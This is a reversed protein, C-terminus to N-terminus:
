KKVFEMAIVGEGPLDNTSPFYAYEQGMMYPERWFPYAGGSRKQMANAAFSGAKKEGYVACRSPRGVIPFLVTELLRQDYYQQWFTYGDAAPLLLGYESESIYQEAAEALCPLTIILRGGAGLMSWMKRLASDSDPIHELVSVCTIVDFTENTFQADDILCCHISGRDALKMADLFGRTLAFDKIDPNILEATVEANHDIFLLPILRPSSVDLYRRAPASHLAQWVFEFEFYRTSDMPSFLLDYVPRYPLSRGGSLVLRLGLRVCRWHFRLGPMVFRHALLWYLLSLPAGLIYHMAKRIPHVSRPSPVDIFVNKMARSAEDM